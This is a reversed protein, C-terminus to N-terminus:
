NKYNKLFDEINQCTIKLLKERAEKSAWAIHPSLLLKEPQNLKQYKKTFDFPETEFVDLCAGAIMQNNIAQVLDDEIVIGGRGLNLLIANSKMKSFEELGIMGKTKPTLPAHISLFDSEALLDNLKYRKYKASRNADSSSYYIVKAGFANAVDAVKQGIAGMGIIGFTKGAIETYEHGFHTFMSSKSYNGSKIYSDFYENKSLFNFLMSFTHQAVSDTSYGAANKVVIGKRACYDLDINNLGTALVGIFKVPSKKLVSESLIVKNTLIIDVKEIRTAIEEPKTHEFIEFNALSLLKKPLSVSGLTERDLIVAKM